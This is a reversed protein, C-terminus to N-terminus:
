ATLWLMQFRLHHMQSGGSFVTPLLNKDLLNYQFKSKALHLLVTCIIRDWCLKMITVLPISVVPHRDLKSFLICRLFFCSAKSFQQLITYQIDVTKFIWLIIMGLGHFIRDFFCSQLIFDQVVIWFIASCIQQLLEDKPLHAVILFTIHFIGASISNRQALSSHLLLDKTNISKHLNYIHPLIM